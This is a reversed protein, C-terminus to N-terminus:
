SFQLDAVPTGAPFTKDTRQGAQMMATLDAALGVITVEPRVYEGGADNTM